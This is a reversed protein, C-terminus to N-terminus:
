QVFHYISNQITVVFGGELSSINQDKGGRTENKRELLCCSYEIDALSNIKHDSSSDGVRRYHSLCQISWNLAVDTRFHNKTTISNQYWPRSIIERVEPSGFDIFFDSNHLFHWLIRLLFSQQHTTAISM